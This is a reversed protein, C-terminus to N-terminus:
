SRAHPRIMTVFKPTTAKKSIAYKITGSSKGVKSSEVAYPHQLIKPLNIVIPEGITASITYGTGSTMRM